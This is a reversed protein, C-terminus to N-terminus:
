PLALAVYAAGQPGKPDRAGCTGIVIYQKGDVMYTAPTAVGDYPLKAKWLLKGSRDHFARITRDFSTAAIIQWPSRGEPQAMFSVPLHLHHKHVVEVDRDHIM